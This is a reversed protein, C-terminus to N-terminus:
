KAAKMLQTQRLLFAAYFCCCWYGVANQLSFHTGNPLVDCLVTSIHATTHTETHKRLIPIIKRHQGYGLSVELKASSFNYFHSEWEIQHLNLVNKRESQAFLSHFREYVSHLRLNVIAITKHEPNQIDHKADWCM